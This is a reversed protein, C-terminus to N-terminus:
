HSFSQMNVGRVLFHICRENKYIRVERSFIFACKMEIHVGKILFHICRENKYM